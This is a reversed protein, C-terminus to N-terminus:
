INVLGLRQLEPLSTESQSTMIQVRGWRGTMSRGAGAPGAGGRRQRRGLRSSRAGPFEQFVCDRKVKGEGERKVM